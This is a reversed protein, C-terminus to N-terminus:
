SLNQFTCLKQNRRRRARVRHSTQRRSQIEVARIQVRQRDDEFCTVAGQEATIERRALAADRLMQRYDRFCQVEGDGDTYHSRYPALPQYDMHNFGTWKFHLLALSTSRHILDPASHCVMGGCRTVKERNVLKRYEHENAKFEPIEFLKLSLDVQDMGATQWRVTKSPLGGKEMIRRLHRFREEHLPTLTPMTLLIPDSPEADFPTPALFEGGLYIVTNPQRQYSLGWLLRALLRSGSPNSLIHWACHFYNTSFRVDTGPRPTIVHYMVGQVPTLHLHLKMGDSFDSRHRPRQAKKQNM